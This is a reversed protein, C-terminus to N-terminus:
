LFKKVVIAEASKECNTTVITFLGSTLGGWNLYM